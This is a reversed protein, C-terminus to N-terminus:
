QCYSTEMRRPQSAKDYGPLSSVEVVGSHFGLFMCQTIHNLHFVQIWGTQLVLFVTPWTLLLHLLLHLLGVSQQLVCFLVQTCQLITLATQSYLFLLHLTLNSFNHQFDVYQSFFMLWNSLLLHTAQTTKNGNMERTTCGSDEVRDSGFDMVPCSGSGSGMVRWNLAM